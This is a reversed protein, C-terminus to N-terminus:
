GGHRDVLDPCAATMDEVIVGAPNPQQGEPAVHIEQAFAVLPCLVHPASLPGIEMSPSIKRALQTGLLGLDADAHCACYALAHKGKCCLAHKAQARSPVGLCLASTQIDHLCWAQM